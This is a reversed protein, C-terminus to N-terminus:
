TGGYKDFYMISMDEDAAYAYFYYGNTIPKKYEHRLCGASFFILCCAVCSLQKMLDPIQCGNCIIALKYTCEITYITILYSVM